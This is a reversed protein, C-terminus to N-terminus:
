SARRRLWSGQNNGHGLAPAKIVDIAVGMGSPFLMMFIADSPAVPLIPLRIICSASLRPWMDGRDRAMRGGDRRTRCRRVPTYCGVNEVTLRGTLRQKGGNLAVLHQRTGVAARDVRCRGHGIRGAGQHRRRTTGADPTDNDDAAGADKFHRGAHLQGIRRAKRVNEFGYRQRMLVRHIYKVFRAVEIPVASGAGIDRTRHPIKAAPSVFGWRHRVTRRARRVTERYLKLRHEYFGWERRRLAFPQPRLPVVSILAPNGCPCTPPM